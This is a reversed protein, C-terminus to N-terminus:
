KSPQQNNSGRHGHAADATRTRLGHHLAPVDFAGVGHERM